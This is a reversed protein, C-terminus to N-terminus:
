HKGYVEKPDFVREDAVEYEGDPRLRRHFCSLYGEHCAADGIQEVILLLSDGYCNIRIERVRQVHGSEEGKRWLKKRSRSYYVACGTRLTELWAEENMFADMLVDHPPDIDQAIARILGSGKEFDPRFM